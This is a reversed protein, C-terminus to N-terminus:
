FAASRVSFILRLPLPFQVVSVERQLTCLVSRYCIVYRSEEEYTSVLQKYRAVSGQLDKERASIAM